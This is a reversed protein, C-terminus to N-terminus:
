VVQYFDSMHQSCHLWHVYLRICFLPAHIYRFNWATGFDSSLLLLAKSHRMVEIEAINLFSTSCVSAIEDLKEDKKCQSSSLMRCQRHSDMFADKAARYLQALVLTSIGLKHEHHWFCTNSSNCVAPESKITDDELLSGDAVPSLSTSSPVDESLFAFQTPHIFGVEDSGCYFSLSLFILRLVPLHFRYKITIGTM